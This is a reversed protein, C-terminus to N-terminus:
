ELKALVARALAAQRDLPDSANIELLTTGKVAYLRHFRGSAIAFADDGLGSLEIPPPADPTAPRRLLDLHSPQFNGQLKISLDIDRGNGGYTCITFTGGAVPQAQQIPRGLAAGVERNDMCPGDPRLTAPGPPSPPPAAREPAAAIPAAAPAGAVPEAKRDDGCAALLLAVAIWSRPRRM